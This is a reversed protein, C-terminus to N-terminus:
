VLLNLKDVLVWIGGITGLILILRKAWLLIRHLRSGSQKNVQPTKNADTPRSDASELSEQGPNQMAAPGLYAAIAMGYNGSHSISLLFGAHTPAGDSQQLIEIDPLSRTVYDPCAKIIAEKAAFIGTLTQRIDPSSEAYSLERLSFISTLSEDAKPASLDQPFLESIQQIDVGVGAISGVTLDGVHRPSSDTIAGVSAGQYASSEGDVGSGLLYEVNNEECWAFYRAKQGSTLKLGQRWDVRRDLLRSLFESREESKLNGDM